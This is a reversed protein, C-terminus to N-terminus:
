FRGNVIPLVPAWGGKSIINLIGVQLGREMEGAYNVLGLQCGRVTGSAVNVGLFVYGGCEAGILDTTFNLFGAQLGTFVGDTINIVGNQLGCFSGAYNVLGLQCGKSVSEWARFDSGNWNVLGFQGGYLRGDAINAGGIGVGTFEGEARNAIGIDLGMFDRSQGYVLSLRFGKVSYDASPAQVPTVLSVMVPTTEAFAAFASAFAAAALLKKM